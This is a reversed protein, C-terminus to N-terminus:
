QAAKEAKRADAAAKEAAVRAAKEAKKVAQVADHKGRLDTAATAVLARIAEPGRLVALLATAEEAFQAGFGNEPPTDRLNDILDFLKVLHVEDPAGAIRANEAQKRAKRNLEPASAPTFKDSLHNVLTAIEDGFLEGVEQVTTPTDEVVDHLIAAIVAAESGGAGRVAASVRLVHAHYPETRGGPIKRPTEGHRTMAFTRAEDIKTTM